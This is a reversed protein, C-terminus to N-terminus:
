LKKYLSLYKCTEFGLSKYLAIARANDKEAELRLFRCNGYNKAVYEFVSKGLGRGRYEPKIYLEDLWLLKGCAEQSASFCIIAYGAPKEDCEILLGNVLNGKLIEENWFYLRGEDSIQSGVAGSLYFDRSMEFYTERDSDVVKRIM